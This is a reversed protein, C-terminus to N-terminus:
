PYVVPPIENVETVPPVAEVAPDETDRGPEPSAEVNKHVFEASPEPQDMMPRSMVSLAPVREQNANKLPVEEPTEAMGTALRFEKWIAALAM